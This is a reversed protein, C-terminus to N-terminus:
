AVASGSAAVASASGAASSPAASAAASVAAVSEPSSGFSSSDLGAQRRGEREFRQSSGGGAPRKSEKVWVTGHDPMRRDPDPSDHVLVTGAVPRGVWEPDDM